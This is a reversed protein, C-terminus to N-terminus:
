NVKDKNTYDEYAQKLIPSSKIIEHLFLMESRKKQLDAKTFSNKSYFKKNFEQEDLPIHEDNPLDNQSLKADIKKIVEDFVLPDSQRLTTFAYNLVEMNFREIHLCTKEKNYRFFSDAEPRKDITNPRPRFLDTTTMDLIEKATEEDTALRAMAIESLRPLDETLDKQGRFINYIEALELGNIYKQITIGILGKQEKTFHLAARVLIKPTYNGVPHMDKLHNLEYVMAATIVEEKQDTKQENMRELMRRMSLLYKEDPNNGNIRNTINRQLNEARSGM